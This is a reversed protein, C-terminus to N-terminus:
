PAYTDYIFNQSFSAIHHTQIYINDYNHRSFKENRIYVYHYQLRPLFNLRETYQINLPCTRELFNKFLPVIQHTKSYIRISLTTKICKLIIKMCFFFMTYYQVYKCICAVPYPPMSGPALGSHFM